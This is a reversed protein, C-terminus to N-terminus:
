QPHNEQDTSEANQFDISITAQGHQARKPLQAKIAVQSLLRKLVTFKGDCRPRM